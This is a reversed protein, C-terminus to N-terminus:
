DSQSVENANAINNIRSSNVIKRRSVTMSVVYVSGRQKINKNASQSKKNLNRKNAENEIPLPINKSSQNQKPTVFPRNSENLVTCQLHGNRSINMIYDISIDKVIFRGSFKFKDPQMCRSHSDHTILQQNRLHM